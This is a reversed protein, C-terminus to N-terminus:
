CQNKEVAGHVAEEGAPNAGEVAGWKDIRTGHRKKFIGTSFTREGRRVVSDFHTLEHLGWRLRKKERVGKHLWM